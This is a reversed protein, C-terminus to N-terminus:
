DVLRSNTLMMGLHILVDFKYNSALIDVNIFETYDLIINREGQDLM